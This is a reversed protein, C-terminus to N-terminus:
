KMKTVGAWYLKEIVFALPKVIVFNLAIACLLFIDIAFPSQKLGLYHFSVAKFYFSRNPVIASILDKERKKGM